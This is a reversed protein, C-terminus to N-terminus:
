WSPTWQRKIEDPYIELIGHAYWLAAGLNNKKCASLMDDVDSWPTPPGSGDVRLGIAVMSSRAAPSVSSLTKEFEAQFAAFSSYYLQPIVEDFLSLKGWLDWDVSYAHTWALASAPDCASIAVIVTM